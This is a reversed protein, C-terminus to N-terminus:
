KGPYAKITMHFRLKRMRDRGSASPKPAGSFDPIAFSFNSSFEAKEPSSKTKKRFNATFPISLGPVPLTRSKTKNHLHLVGNADYLTDSKKVFSLIQFTALPMEAPKFWGPAILYDVYTKDGTTASGTDITVTARSQKLNGPDFAIDAAWSQFTLKFPKGERDFGSFQISSKSRDVKWEKVSDAARAPLAALLLCLASLLLKM